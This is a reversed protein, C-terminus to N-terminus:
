KTAAPRFVVYDARGQDEARLTASEASQLSITLYKANPAAAKMRLLLGGDHDTHFQGVVLVAKGHNRWATLVSDAMTADWVQQGRFMGEIQEPTLVHMAPMEAAAGKAPPAGHHSMTAKFREGYAAEEIPAPVVFQGPYASAFSSLKEFGELRALRPFQRPANAAILPVHGARATDVIPQYFADWEGPSAWDRSDTLDVLTKQSLAGTLYADVFAQEDREFMEMCVAVPAEAALAAILAAQFRHGVADDHQEGLVIVDAERAEELLADWAIVGNDRGVIVMERPTFHSAKPEAAARGSKMTVCGPVGLLMLGLVLVLLVKSAGDSHPATM